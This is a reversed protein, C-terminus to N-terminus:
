AIIGGGLCIEDNYLVASQGSAPRKIEHDFWLTEGDFKAPVLPARHRLRVLVNEETTDARILIDRLKLEDTWLNRSNLNKSVYVINNEIDKKVVYYPMGDNVVGKEGDLYLNISYKALVYNDEYTVDIILECDEQPIAATTTEPAAETTEATDTSAPATESDDSAAKEDESAESTAKTTEEEDDPDKQEATTNEKEKSKKEASIVCASTMISIMLLMAAITIVRKKM